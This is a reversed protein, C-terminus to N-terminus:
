SKQWYVTLIVDETAGTSKYRAHEQQRVERKGQLKRNHKRYCEGQQPCLARHGMEPCATV